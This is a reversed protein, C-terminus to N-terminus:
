GDVQQIRLRALQLDISNGATLSAADLYYTHKHQKDGTATYTVSRRGPLADSTAGLTFVPTRGDAYDYRHANCYRDTAPRM